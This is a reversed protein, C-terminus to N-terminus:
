ESLNSRLGIKNISRQPLASESNQKPHEVEYGIVIAALHNSKIASQVATNTNHLSYNAFNYWFLCGWAKWMDSIDRIQCNWNPHRTPGTSSPARASLIFLWGSHNGSVFPFNLSSNLFRGNRNGFITVQKKSSAPASIM